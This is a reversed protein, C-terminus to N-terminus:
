VNLHRFDTVVRANIEHQNVDSPKFIAFIGRKIDRFLM